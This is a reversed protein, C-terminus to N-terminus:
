TSPFRSPGVFLRSWPVLWLMVVPIFVVQPVRVVQVGPVGIVKYVHLQSDKHDSSCDPGHSLVEADRCPDVFLAFIDMQNMSAIIGLM